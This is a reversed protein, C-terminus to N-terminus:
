KGEPKKAPAPRLTSAEESWKYNGKNKEWFAAWLKKLEEPKPVAEGSKKEFKGDAAPVLADGPGGGRTYDQDGGEMGFAWSLGAAAYKGRQDNGLLAIMAPVSDPDGIEAWSAAVGWGYDAKDGRLGKEVIKVLEAAAPKHRLMGLSTCTRRTNKANTEKALAELLAPAAAKDGIMGLVRMVTGRANMDELALLKALAAVEEPTHKFRPRQPKGEEALILQPIVQNCQDRVAEDKSLAGALVAALGRQEGRGILIFGAAARVKESEDKLAALILEVAPGAKWDERDLASVAAERVALNKDALCEKLLKVAEAEPWEQASRSVLCLTRRADEPTAPKPMWTLTRILASWDLKKEVAPSLGVAWKKVQETRIRAVVDKYRERLDRQDDKLKAYAAEIEPVFKEGAAVLEEIAAAQEKASESVLRAVPGEGALAGALAFGVAGLALAMILRTM